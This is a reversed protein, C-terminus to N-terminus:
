QMTRTDTKIVAVTFESNMGLLGPKMNLLM